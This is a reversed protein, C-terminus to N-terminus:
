ILIKEGDHGKIFSQKKTGRLKNRKAARGIFEPNKKKLKRRAKIAQETEEETMSDQTRIRKIPIPYKEIVSGDDGKIIRMQSEVKAMLKCDRFIPCNEELELTIRSKRKMLDMVTEDEGLKNLVGIVVAEHCMGVLRGTTPHTKSFPCIKKSPPIRKKMPQGDSGIPIKAMAIEKRFHFHLLVISNSRGEEVSSRMEKRRLTAEM